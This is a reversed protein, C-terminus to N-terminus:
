LRGGRDFHLGDPCGFADAEASPYRAGAGTLAPDGALVFHGWAFGSGGADGRRM